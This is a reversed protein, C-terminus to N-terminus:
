RPVRLVGYIPGPDSVDVYYLNVDPLPVAAGELALQRPSRGVALPFAGTGDLRAEMVVGATQDSWFVATRDAVIQM